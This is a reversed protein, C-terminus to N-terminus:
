VCIPCSRILNVQTHTCTYMNFWKLWTQSKAVSHASAQWAGRDMPNELCPYQLPNDNGEWPSRGSGPILGVDRLDGANAPPKKVVQAERIAWLTFFGSTICYVRTRNRPQSSRRSFPYAVWELIRPSGKHSLQCLIWRCHPLGPNSGQTTFVTTPLFAAWELTRAQLLGHPTYYHQLAM